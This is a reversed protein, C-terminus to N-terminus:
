LQGAAAMDAQRIREVPGQDRLRPPWAQEPHFRDGRGGRLSADICCAQIQLPMGSLHAWSRTLLGDLATWVEPQSIDGHLAHYAVSWSEFDRGWAVLELELRDAQVDVGATLFCGGAPVTGEVYPEARLILAEAEPVELAPPSYTLGLGTNVFVREKEPIGRAAEHRRLLDRWTTWPSYLQSLHYGRQEPACRATARWEGRELMDLKDREQIDEGCMPCRYVAAGGEFRLGEFEFTVAAACHPCPMFYRRRDTADYLREIRSIGKETPTSVLLIRKATGYSEARAV